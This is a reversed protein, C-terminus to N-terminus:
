IGAGSGVPFHRCFLLCPIAFSQTFWVVGEVQTDSILNRWRAVYGFGIVLFVPLIVDALAQM